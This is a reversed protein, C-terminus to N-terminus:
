QGLAQSTLLKARQRGEYKPKFNLSRGSGNFNLYAKLSAIHKTYNGTDLLGHRDIEKRVDVDKTPGEDYGGAQRAAVLLVALAQVKSAKTAGFAELDGVYQLEGEHEDFLREVSGPDIGLEAAVRKLREDPQAGSGLAGGEPAASDVPVKTALHAPAQAGGVLALAAEFAPVRLDDPVDAEDVAKM